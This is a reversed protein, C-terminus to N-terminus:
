PQLWEKQLDDRRKVLQNYTVFNALDRDSLVSEENAKDLVQQISLGTNFFPRAVEKFKVKDIALLINALAELHNRLTSPKYKPPVYTDRIYKAILEHNDAIWKLPGKSSPLIARNATWFHNFWTNYKTQEHEKLSSVTLRNSPIEDFEAPIDLKKVFQVKADDSM